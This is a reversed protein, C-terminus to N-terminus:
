KKGGYLKAQAQHLAKAYATATTADKFVGLHEGTKKFQDLVAQKGKYPPASLDKGVRKVGLKTLAPIGKNGAADAIQPLLIEKGGPLGFSASKVTSVSGDKNKVVPRNRLDINGPVVPKPSPM